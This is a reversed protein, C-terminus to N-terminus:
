VGVRLRWEDERARLRVVDGRTPDAISRDLTTIMRRQVDPSPAALRPSGQGARLERAALEQRDLLGRALGLMVSPERVAPRGEDLPASLLERLIKSM